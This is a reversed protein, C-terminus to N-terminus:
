GSIRLHILLDSHLYDEICNDKLQWREFHFFTWILIGILHSNIETSFVIRLRARRNIEEQDTKRWRQTDEHTFILDNSHEKHTFGRLKGKRSSHDLFPPM